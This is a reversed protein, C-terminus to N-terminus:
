YSFYLLPYGKGPTADVIAIFIDTIGTFNNNYAGDIYPLDANDTQGAIYLKGNAYQFADIRDTVSGGMYTLYSLVPDIVLQRKRDYGALRLGVTNRGLLVYRGEVERRAGSADQQYIFARKQVMEAGRSAVVLDGEATLRVRDAGRFRLRIVDPGAG